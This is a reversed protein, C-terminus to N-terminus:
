MYSREGFLRHGAFGNQSNIGRYEVRRFGLGQILVRFGISFGLAEVGSRLTMM